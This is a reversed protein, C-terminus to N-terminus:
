RTTSTSAPGITIFSKVTEETKSQLSFLLSLANRFESCNTHFRKLVTRQTYHSLEFIRSPPDPESRSFSSFNPEARFFDAREPPSDPLSLVGM